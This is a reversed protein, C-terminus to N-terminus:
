RRDGAEMFVSNANNGFGVLRTFMNISKPGKRKVDVEMQSDGTISKIPQAHKKMGKEDIELMVGLLKGDLDGISFQTGLM